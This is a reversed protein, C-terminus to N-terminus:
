TVPATRDSRITLFSGFPKSALAAGPRRRLSHGGLSWLTLIIASGTAGMTDWILDTATDTASGVLNAGAWEDLSWVIIECGAGIAMGLMV